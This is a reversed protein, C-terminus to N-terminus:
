KGANATAGTKGAATINLGRGALDFASIPIVIGGVIDDTADAGNGAIPNGIARYLNGEENFTGLLAGSASGGFMTNVNAPFSGQFSSGGEMLFIGGSRIALTNGGNLLQVNAAITPDSAAM